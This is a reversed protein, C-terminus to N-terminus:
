RIVNLVVNILTSQLLRISFFTGAFQLRDFIKLQPSVEQICVYILM